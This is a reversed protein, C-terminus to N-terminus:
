CDSGGGGGNCSGGGDFIGGDGSSSSDSDSSSSAFMWAVLGTNTAGASTRSRSAHQLQRRKERVRRLIAEHEPRRPTPAPRQRGFIRRLFELM